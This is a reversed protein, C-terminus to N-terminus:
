CTSGTQNLCRVDTIKHEKSYLVNLYKTDDYWSTLYKHIEMLKAFAFPRQINKFLCSSCQLFFTFLDFYGRLIYEFLWIYLLIYHAHGTGEAWSCIKLSFFNIFDDPSVNSFKSVDTPM